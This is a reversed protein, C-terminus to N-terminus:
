KTTGGCPCLTRCTPCCSTYKTIWPTICEAHFTHGCNLTKVGSGRKFIHNLTGKHSGELLPSLCIDCEKTGQGVGAQPAVTPFQEDFEQVSLLKKQKTGKGDEASEGTPTPQIDIKYFASQITEIVSATHDDLSDTYITLTKRNLDDISVYFPYPITVTRTTKERYKQENEDCRRKTEYIESLETKLANLKLTITDLKRQTIDIKKTLRNKTQKQARDLNEEEDAGFKDIMEDRLTMVNNSLMDYEMQIPKIEESLKLIISKCLELSKTNEEQMKKSKEMQIREREAEKRKQEEAQQRQENEMRKQEAEMLAKQAAARAAAAAAAADRQSQEEEEKVIREEEQKLKFIRAAEIREKELQLAEEEQKLNLIRVAEIREKEKQLAEEEARIKDLEIQRKKEELEVRRKRLEEENRAKQEAEHKKRKEEEIRLKTEQERIRHNREDEIQKRISASEDPTMKRIGTSPQQVSISKIKINDKLGM